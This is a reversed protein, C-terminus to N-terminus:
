AYVGKQLRDGKKFRGLKPRSEARETGVRGGVELRSLPLLLVLLLAGGRGSDSTRRVLPHREGGAM